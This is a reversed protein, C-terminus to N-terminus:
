LACVDGSICARRVWAAMGHASADGDALDIGEAVVLGIADIVLADSARGRSLDSPLPARRGCALVYRGAAQAM